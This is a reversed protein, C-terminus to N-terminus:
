LDRRRFSLFAVGMFVVIWAAAVGLLKMPEDNVPQPPQGISAGIANMREVLAAHWLRPDMPARLAGIPLYPAVDRALEATGLRRVMLLILQELFAFYLFFVGIAGGTSRLVVALMFAMSAFGLTGLAYGGLVAFDAGTVFPADRDPPPFVPRPRQSRADIMARRLAAQTSDARRVAAARASDAPSLSPASEAAGTGAATEQQQAAGSTATRNTTTSAARPAVGREAPTAGTTRTYLAGGTAVTFPTLLFAALVMFIMFTKALFFQEKSLGDIVNQRATRWTFESTVLMVVTLALFFAPMGDLESAAMGWAYPAVFPAGDGMRGSVIEGGIVLSSFLLLFGLAVWFATRRIMKIWEIRILAGTRV